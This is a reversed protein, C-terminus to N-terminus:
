LLHNLKTFYLQRIQKGTTNKGALQLGEALKEWVRPVGFLKTPKVRLLNEILTGKLANKDAFHIESGACISMFCDVLLAAVHSLPLYSM